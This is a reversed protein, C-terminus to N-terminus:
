IDQEMGFQMQLNLNHNVQGTQLLHHPDAMVEDAARTTAPTGGVRGTSVLDCDLSWNPVNNAIGLLLLRRRLKRTQFLKPKLSIVDSLGSHLKLLFFNSIISYITFDLSYLKLFCLDHIYVQLALAKPNHRNDKKVKIQVM